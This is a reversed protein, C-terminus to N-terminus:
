VKFQGFKESLEAVIQNLEEALKVMQQMSVIIEKTGSLAESMGATANASINRLEDSSNAISRTGEQVEKSGSRINATITSIHDSADLIQKGGNNLESVSSEIESFANVTDTIEKMISDFAHSTAAVNEDTKTVSDTIDQIHQSIKQSSQSASDALKRIEEAVVAFGKGSEGAHAAEISANMSLLNTKSAIDNITTAMEQINQIQKVVQKFVDSTAIIKMRGEEAVEALAATTEKKAQTVNAVSNLSAMMQTIAASSEEVMASQDDIQNDMSDINAAIQEIATVTSSINTDLSELQKGISDLNAGIQESASSTEEISASVNSNIDNTHKVADKVDAVLTRLKGIFFNFSEAVKGIEDKTRVEMQLTLDADAASLMELNKGTDTIPKIITRMIILFGIIQVLIFFIGVILIPPLATQVVRKFILAKPIHVFIGWPTHPIHQTQLMTTGFRSKGEFYWESKTQINNLLEQLATSQYGLEKGLDEIRLPNEPDYTSESGDPKLAWIESLDRTNFLTIRVNNKEMTSKLLDTVGSILYDVATVGLVTGSDDIVHSLTIAIPNEVGEEATLYPDTIYFAKQKDAASRFTATAGTYWDRERADYWDPLGPERQAVLARSYESSVYLLDIDAGESSTGLFEQLDFYDPIEHFDEWFLSDPMQEVVSKTLPSQRVIRITDFIENVKITISESIQYALENLLEKEKLFLQNYSSYFLYGCIGVFLVLPVILQLFIAKILVSAGKQSNKKTNKRKSEKVKKKQDSM